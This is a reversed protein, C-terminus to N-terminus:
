ILYMIFMTSWIYDFDGNLFHEINQTTQVVPTQGPAQLVFSSKSSARPLEFVAKNVTNTTSRAQFGHTSIPGLVFTEHLIVTHTQLTKEPSKGWWYQSSIQASRHKSNGLADLLDLGTSHGSKPRSFKKKEFM